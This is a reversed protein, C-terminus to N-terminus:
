CSAFQTRNLSVLVLYIKLTYLQFWQYNSYSPLCGELQCQSSQILWSVQLRPHQFDDMAGALAPLIHQHYQMQLGPGFDTCLAGIATIAAWRVRPHPDQFSKLVINVM